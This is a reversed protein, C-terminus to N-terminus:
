PEVVAKMFGDPRAVAADLADALRELPFRHTVLPGLDLRGAVVAEVGERIGEVVVAPDREHANVVDLGRWNWLRLDVQRPGDQHYGAVVLRGRVRTLRAALDLTEQVGAAEVVVDFTEEPAAEPAHARAAGLELALSRAFPRRALATVEAGAAVALQLVLAGLFGVGVIAVRDGAALGSRRVVNVACGVAEGPFAAGRLAPPLPVLLDASAADYAAFSRELLGTVRTGPRLAEVGPGVAEVVGWGEHGPEGPELPYSFWPRGEWVPVNSGCVGCGELRVLAEGPGPEPVPGPRLEVSGPGSLVAAAARTGVAAATV